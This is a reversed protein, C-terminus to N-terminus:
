AFQAPRRNWLHGAWAAVAGMTSWALVSMMTASGHFGVVDAMPVNHIQVGMYLGFLFLVLFLRASGSTRGLMTAFAALAFLGGLLALARLPDAAALRLAAVGTFMLGLLLTAALQRWYRRAAGGPVASGLVACGAEGDRTSLDSVLVGWFAVCALVLPALKAAPLVLAPVQAALLLAIATPATGLTLAVDALAAGPIGPLRAALGFLPQALRSLPRLWGDLVALPSRRAGARAAKVRDPSFRHFLALALCLPLFALLASIARVAVIDARLLLLSPSSPLTLPALKPDFDAIGLSMNQIDVHASLAAIVASMGSFDFPLTAAVPGQTAAPLMAMQGAWVIFYLLDGRKGMLPAWSEWLVACGATFLAMPGLVVLYTSLYVGLEIPGEGRVLHCALVTAMSAGILALLYLVGGCWRGLVFAPGGLASAGIVGGLGARQDELMRGRLLYFGALAFLLSAQAASGLALMASTYRVRAGGIAMLTQGAAPDSVMLWSLAVVAFLTALTSARRLRVRAELLALTRIVRMGTSMNMNM